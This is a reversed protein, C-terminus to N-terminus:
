EQPVKLIIGESFPKVIKRGEDGVRYRKTLSAGMAFYEKSSGGTPTHATRLGM